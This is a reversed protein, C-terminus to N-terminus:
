PFPLSVNTDVSQFADFRDMLGVLGPCDVFPNRNGQIAETRDNRIRERASVPDRDHWRRLVSEEADQIPLGWRISFYFIIRAVDGQRDPRPEFVRAGSLNTGVVSPAHDLNRQGTVEGYHLSGRASNATPRSPMLAHIDSQQHEYLTPASEETAMRSRPWVHECNLDNRDPEGTAPADAMFGTYVCEIQGDSSDRLSREVRSFMLTRATTYRNPNNGLDVQVAVPQYTTSVHEHLAQQLPRFALSSWPECGPEDLNQESDESPDDADSPIDAAQGASEDAADSGGTTTMTDNVIVGGVPESQDTSPPSCDDNLGEALCSGCGGETTRREVAACCQELTSCPTSSAPMLCMLTGDLMRSTSTCQTAFPAQSSCLYCSADPDQRPTSPPMMTSMGAGPPQQCPACASWQGDICMSNGQSVGDDCTCLRMAEATTCPTSPSETGTNKTGCSFALISLLSFLVHHRFPQKMRANDMSVRMSELGIRDLAQCPTDAPDGAVIAVM